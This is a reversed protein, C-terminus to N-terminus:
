VAEPNLICLVDGERVQSGEAVALDAIRGAIPARMIHEMKMAELIMLQDGASVKQGERMELKLVRGPMPAKLAGEARVTKSADSFEPESVVIHHGSVDAFLQSGARHVMIVSPEGDVVIVLRGDTSAVSDLRHSEGNIKLVVAGGEFVTEIEVLEGQAFLRRAERRPAGALQWGSKERWPGCDVRAGSPAFLWAACSLALIQMPAEAPKDGLEDLFRTTPATARFRPEGALSLLFGKNTKIGFLATEALAAGLKEVAESREPAWVILKAIMSDYFSGIESGATIGTEIRCNPITGPWRLARVIGTQPLFGQAPDEAYLRAEIAHGNDEIQGQALPLKMGAAVKLQIEVLDHGTIMETVPHEVQLRTNMELFYFRDDKPEYLFEITGANRYDVAKAIAVAAALMSRRVDAPMDFAPAEEIIKQHRRQISCDREFLHIINGHADGMVQVEVHRTVPFYKELLVREDGFAARAERRCAELAAAFDAELGVVRMGRGGGGAIAKIIVPFGLISAERRLRELSQDAGQYGPVVPVGAERAVTKAEDKLGMRRIAEPSPGIFAVGQEECAAAFGANESLFGYGPHIADAGATKAVTLIREGNLYSFRAEAPGLYHAEDADRVHLANQDAESYVAITRMGMRRATRIIRCAIEGRNAILLSAFM